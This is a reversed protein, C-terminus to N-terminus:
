RKKLVEDFVKAWKRDEEGDLLKPYIKFKPLDVLADEPNPKVDKRTPLRGFKTLFQQAQQSIVYNAALKAANPHPANAAVGVQGYFLPVPDLWFSDTPSKALKVNLTLNTYNNLAVMYEGLGVARAIALHGDAIVPNLNTVIDKLLARAKTEGYHEFLVALWVTDSGDIVVRGAWEKRQALEEFTKPLQEPKVLNTNYAPSNYNAYVGWWRRDKDVAGAELFKAESLDLQALLAPPIKQVNATQALDWAKQGARAELTIRGLIQTDSARVYSIKIGTVKEFDNWLPLGEEENTTSYIVVSGEAKASALISRDLWSPDKVLDQSPAPTQAALPSLALPSLALPSLALVVLSLGLSVSRFLSCSRSIM